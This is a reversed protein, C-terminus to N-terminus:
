EVRRAGRQSRGQGAIRIWNWHRAAGGVPLGGDTPARWIRLENLNVDTTGIPRQEGLVSIAARDLRAIPYRIAQTEVQLIHGVPM